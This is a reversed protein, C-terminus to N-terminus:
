DLNSNFIFQSYDIKSTDLHMFVVDGTKVLNDQVIGDENFYQDQEDSGVLHILSMSNKFEEITIPLRETLTRYSDENNNEVYELTDKWAQLFQKQLGPNNILVQKNIAIVDLLKQPIQSSDFLTNVDLQKKIAISVPTYSTIADVKGTKLARPLKHLEMPILVVESYKIDNIELARSVLYSSFSGAEVGIKKGKLDKLNKFQKSALIEDAGNSYDIVAITQAIQESYKHAELVEVLTAAMGDVKGREFARRVEALSSLEVLEIDIGAQKFFGQKHTIFLYEFGPWQTIGIRITEQKNEYPNFSLYVFLLLTGAILLFSIINRKGSFNQSM